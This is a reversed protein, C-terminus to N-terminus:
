EPTMGALVCLRRYQSESLYGALGYDSWNKRLQIIFDVDRGYEAQNLAETMTDEYDDGDAFFHEIRERKPM